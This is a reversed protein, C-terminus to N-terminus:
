PVNMKQAADLAGNPVATLVVADSGRCNSCVEELFTRILPLGERFMSRMLRVPNNSKAAAQMSPHEMIQQPNVSIPIHHLGYAAILGSFIKPASLFVEFGAKQLGSGLAIFPQVDGRSGVAAITIKM